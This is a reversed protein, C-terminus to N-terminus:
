NASDAQLASNFILSKSCTPVSNESAPASKTAAAAAAKQFSQMFKKLINECPGKFGHRDRWAQAATVGAADAVHDEVGNLLVMCVKLAGLVLILSYMVALTLPGESHQPPPPSAQMNTKAGKCKVSNAFSAMNQFLSVSHHPHRFAGTIRHLFSFLECRLPCTEPCTCRFLIRWNWWIARFGNKQFPSLANRRTYDGAPFCSCQPFYTDEKLQQSFPSKLGSSARTQAACLLRTCFFFLFEYFLMCNTYHSFLLLLLSLHPLSVSVLM